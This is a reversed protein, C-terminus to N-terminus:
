LGSLIPWILFHGIVGALLLILLIALKNSAFSLEVNSNVPISKHGHILASIIADGKCVHILVALVHVAVLGLIGYFLNLHIWTLSDSIGDSVFPYLPGETYIDDTSFLGTVLQLSILVLLAMVMYGGAPNHGLSSEISKQTGLSKLYTITKAPSHIFGKFRSSESGIGGWVWRFSLIILLTYALIQHWEMEGESATWWLGVMLLILSWHFLRTPIDWVKINKAKVNM